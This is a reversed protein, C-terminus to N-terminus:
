TPRSRPEAPSSSTPPQAQHRFDGPTLGLERKFVVSFYEAHRFGTRAAIEALSLQTEELLEKAKRLQVHRIEAQPSRGLYKRFRRELVSRAMPVQDLLHKLTLGECAQRRILRVAAAIQPDDIALVDTSQRTSIGLPPIWTEGLPIAEGRMLRDLLAAAEYGLAFSNPRISSLPPDCLRCLLQDDDVGLVAVEEPVAMGTGRCADLVQQGRLDNSCLVGVPRPLGRLWDALDEQQTEWRSLRAQDWPSEFAHLSRVKGALHDAFGQRREESWVHGSFGCFACHEFGRELFHEAGLRGVARHDTWLRHLQPNRYVDTLDVTPIGSIRLREALEPTTSRSIIGDVQRRDLWAPAAALLERLDVYLSWPGHSLVYRGAGRLIERGYELTTEVMLLVHPRRGAPKM